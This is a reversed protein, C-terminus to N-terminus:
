KPLSFFGNVKASENVLSTIDTITCLVCNKRPIREVSEFRPAELTNSNDLSEFYIV